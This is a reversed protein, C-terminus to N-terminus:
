QIGGLSTGIFNNNANISQVTAGNPLKDGVTVIIIKNTANDIVWAMGPMIGKVKYSPVMTVTEEQPLHRVTVTPQTKFPSVELNVVPQVQATTAPAADGTLPNKVVHAPKVKKVKTKHVLGTNSNEAHSVSQKVPSSKMRETKAELVSVRQKLNSVEGELVAVAQSNVPQGGQNVQEAIAVASSATSLQQVAQGQDPQVPQGQGQPSMSVVGSSAEVPMSSVVPIGSEMNMFPDGVKMGNAEQSPFPQSEAQVEPTIEAQQVPQPHPSKKNLVFVYVVGVLLVFVVGAIGILTKKQKASMPKKAAKSDASTAQKQEETDLQEGTSSEEMDYGGEDQSNSEGHSHEHSDNHENEADQYMSDESNQYADAPAAFSPIAESHQNSM